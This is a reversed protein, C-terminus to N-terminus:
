DYFGGLAGTLASLGGFWSIILLLDNSWEILINLRM